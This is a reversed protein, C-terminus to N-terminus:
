PSRRDFKPMESLKDDLLQPNLLTMMAETPTMRVGNVKFPRRYCGEIVRFLSSGCRTRDCIRNIGDWHPCIEIELKLTRTM